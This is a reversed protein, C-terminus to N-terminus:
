AVDQLSSWVDNGVREIIVSERPVPEASALWVLEPVSGGGASGTGAPKLGAVLDLRKTPNRRLRVAYQEPSGEAGLFAFRQGSRSPQPGVDHHLLRIQIGLPRRRARGPKQGEDHGLGAYRTIAALGVV